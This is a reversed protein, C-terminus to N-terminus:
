VYENRVCITFKGIYDYPYDCVGSKQYTMDVHGYFETKEHAFSNMVCNVWGEFNRQPTNCAKYGFGLGCHDTFM